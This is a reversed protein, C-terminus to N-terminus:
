SCGARHRDWRGALLLRHMAITTTEQTRGGATAAPPASPGTNGADRLVLHDPLGGVHMRQSDSTSAISRM